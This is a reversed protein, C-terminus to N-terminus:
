IFTIINKIDMRVTRSIKHNRKMKKNKNVMGIRKTVNSKKSYNRTIRMGHNIIKKEKKKFRCTNKTNTIFSM